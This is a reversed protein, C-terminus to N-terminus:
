ACLGGFGRHALRGSSQALVELGYLVQEAIVLVGDHGARHQAFEAGLRVEVAAVAKGESQQVTVLLGAGLADLPAKGSRHFRRCLGFFM